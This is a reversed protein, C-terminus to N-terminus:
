GAGRRRRHRWIVAAALPIVAVLGLIVVLLVGPGGSGHKTVAPVNAAALLYGFNTLTAAVAAQSPIHHDAVRVWTKGDSSGLLATSPVPTQVIADVPRVPAPIRTGSPQYAAAVHYANGDPYLGPPLAGLTAPDLPTISIAVSTNPPSAPIAGAPLTLVLQGDITAVGTQPSGFATLDITQSSALPAINTAKFAAPPHVWRYPAAPGIGEYLPRLPHRSTGIVALCATLYVAAATALGLKRSRRQSM